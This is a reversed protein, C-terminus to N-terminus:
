QAMAGAVAAWGHWIMKLTVTLVILLSVLAIWRHRERVHALLNAAFGM